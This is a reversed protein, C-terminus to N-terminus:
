ASRSPDLNSPSSLFDLCTVILSWMVASEAYNRMDTPRRYLFVRVQPSLAIM